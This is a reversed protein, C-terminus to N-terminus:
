LVASICTFKVNDLNNEARFVYKYLTCDKSHFSRNGWFENVSYKAALVNLEDLITLFDMEEKCFAYILFMKRRGTFTYTIQSSQTLEEFIEMYNEM